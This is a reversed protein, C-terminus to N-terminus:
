VIDVNMGTAPNWILHFPTRSPVAVLSTKTEWGTAATWMWYNAGTPSSVEIDDNNFLFEQYSYNLLMEPTLGTVDDSPDLLYVSYPEGMDERSTFEFTVLSLNDNSRKVQSSKWLGHKAGYVQYQGENTLAVVIVGDLKDIESSAVLNMVGSVYHTYQNDAVDYQVEDAGANFASKFAEYVAPKLQASSNLQTSTGLIAIKNNLGFVKTTAYPYVWIKAVLGAVPACYNIINDTLLNCSM